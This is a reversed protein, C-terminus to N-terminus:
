SKPKSKTRRKYATRSEYLEKRKLLSHYTLAFHHAYNRLSILLRGLPSGQDLLVGERHHPTFLREERKALSVVLATPSVTLLTQQVASLQGKGGDILILDPISDANRYRRTVIEQLAAYDNQETLTKIKFRRFASRDPVGDVFRISSGVLHRSHHHSIDFCDITHIQKDTQLLQQLAKAAAHYIQVRQEQDASSTLARAIESQYTKPTFAARITAFIEELDEAYRYLQRAHEFVLKQQAERLAHNLTQTFQATDGNLVARVLEMRTRYAQEDFSGTCEGACIGLHYKLCGNSTSRTCRLLQFRKILYEHARRVVSRQVFPGWYDGVKSRTRTLKLEPLADPTIHLYLFPQGSSLLINYRPQHCKILHEELLLADTESHTVIHEISAADRLLAAIKEPQQAQQSFYSAVRQALSRAKGVYLVREQADKFLYVGPLKPLSPPRTVM